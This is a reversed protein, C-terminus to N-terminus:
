EGARRALEGRSPHAILEASQPEFAQDLAEGAGIAVLDGVGSQPGRQEVGAAQGLDDAGQGGGEVLVVVELLAQQFVQLLEELLEGGSTRGRRRTPRVGEQVAGVALDSRMERIRSMIATRHLGHTWYHHPRFLEWASFPGRRGGGEQSQPEPFPRPTRSAAM